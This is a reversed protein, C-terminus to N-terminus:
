LRAREALQSPCLCAGDIEAHPTQCIVVGVADAVDGEGRVCVDDVCGLGISVIPRHRYLPPGLGRNLCSSSVM